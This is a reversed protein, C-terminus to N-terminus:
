LTVATRFAVADGFTTDATSEIGLAEVDIDTDITAFRSEATNLTSETVIVAM